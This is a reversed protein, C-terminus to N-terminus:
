SAALGWAVWSPCGPSELDAVRNLITCCLMVFVKANQMANPSPASQLHRFHVVHILLICPVLPFLELSDEGACLAYDLLEWWCCAPPVSAIM